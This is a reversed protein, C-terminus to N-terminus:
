KRLVDIDAKKAQVHQHRRPIMYRKGNRVFNAGTQKFHFGIGAGACQERISLVWEYCLERADPGSEGGVVVSEIQPCLAGRFDVPGLLPECIIGKKRFPLRLLEGIREDARRQNEMTALLRVNEWGDGWDPPLCGAVRLVRKTIITFSVDRRERIMDWAEGRWGDASDLFFDSTMCAYVLSRSPIKYEGNRKREVPLAFTSTRFVESADRGVSEDRRYVYCHACGESFKACGHWPNWIFEM